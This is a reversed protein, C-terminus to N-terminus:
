AKRLFEFSSPMANEPVPFIQIFPLSTSHFSAFMWMAECTM